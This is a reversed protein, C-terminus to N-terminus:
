LELSAFRGDPGRLVDLLWCLCGDHDAPQLAYPWDASPVPVDDVGLFVGALNRHAPFEDRKVSPDYVWRFGTSAIGQEALAGLVNAGLGIGGSM